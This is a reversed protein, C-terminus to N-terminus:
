RGLGVRLALMSGAVTRPRWHISAQSGSHRLVLTEEGSQWRTMRIRHDRGQGGDAPM